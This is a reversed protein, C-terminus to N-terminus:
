LSAIRYYRTAHNGADIDTWHIFGASGAQVTAVKQWDGSRCVRALPHGCLDYGDRRQWFAFRNVIGPQGNLRRAKFTYTGVEPKGLSIGDVNQLGGLFSARANGGEPPRTTNALVM